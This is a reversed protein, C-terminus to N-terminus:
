LSIRKKAVIALFMPIEERARNEMKAAKGTSVKDSCWEEILDITFGSNHLWNSYLSIPYHFSLTSPSEKGQSPHAQIPIKIPSMYRDIRRYQLKKPEDVGWSSQRPIRFCPHNIVFILTGGEDLLQSANRFVDEPKEINQLALLCVACSFGKKEINISKTIDRVFYSHGPKRDYKKAAEILSKSIDVGVYEVGKPLHRALIGQGCALDLVRDKEKIFKLVNPIVVHKHYYHGEKGVAKDYWKGVSEWSTSSM